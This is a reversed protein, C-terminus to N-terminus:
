ELPQKTCNQHLPTELMKNEERRIAAQYKKKEEVYQNKRSM